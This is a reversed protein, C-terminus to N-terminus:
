DSTVPMQRLEDDSLGLADAFRVLMADCWGDIWLAGDEANLEEPVAVPVGDTMANTYGDTYADYNISMTPTM